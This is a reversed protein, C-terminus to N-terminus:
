RAEDIMLTKHRLVFLDQSREDIGAEQKLGVGIVHRPDGVFRVHPHKAGAWSRFQCSSFAGTYGAMAQSPYSTVGTGFSILRTAEYVRVKIGNLVPTASYRSASM